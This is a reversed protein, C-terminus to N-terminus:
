WPRVSAINDLTIRPVGKSGMACSFLANGKRWQCVICCVSNGIRELRATLLMLRQESGYGEGEVELRPAGEYSPLAKFITGSACRTAVKWSELLRVDLKVGCEELLSSGFSNAM